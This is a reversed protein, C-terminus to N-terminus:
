LITCRNAGKCCCRRDKKNMDDAQNTNQTQVSESKAPAQPAVETDGLLKEVAKPNSTALNQVALKQLKRKRNKAIAAEKIQKQSEGWSSDEDSHMAFAPQLTMLIVLSLLRKEM